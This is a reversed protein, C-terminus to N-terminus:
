ETITKYKLKGTAFDPDVKEDPVITLKTKTFPHTCTQGILDSYREDSPHVAIGTDALM